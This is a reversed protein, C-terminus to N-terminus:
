ALVLATFTEAAFVRARAVLNTQLFTGAAAVVLHLAVFGVHGLAVYFKRIPQPISLAVIGVCVIRRCTIPIRAITAFRRTTSRHYATDVAVGWM